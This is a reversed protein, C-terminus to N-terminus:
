RIRHPSYALAIERRGRAVCAPNAGDQVLYWHQRNAWGLKRSTAAQFCLALVREDVLLGRNSGAVLWAAADAAEQELDRRRQGFNIVPRDLYLLYQEKYAVLGLEGVDATRAQVHRVFREGSRWENMAPIVWYSVILVSWAICVGFAIFALKSRALLCIAICGAGIAFLPPVPDVGYSQLLELRENDGPRLLGFAAISTAAAILAVLVLLMRQPARRRALDPLFPACALVFAPVAPLVYVGRKGSSFSFFLVVLVTWALPLVVRLDRERWSNRWRPWLWPVLAIWPLWLLPIVAVIFYWFPERHHWAEAYRELTQRFLIEDRYAALDPHHAAAVLMPVLWVSVAAIMVLPGLSWRARLEFRQAGPWHAVRAWLYPLFILLPLFGVGKTIIGFGVAAWAGVYWRWDPGLLLHRMFGYLGLTTWFCLTADIQAQRAQWIFQVSVLLAFGALLGIERNWLRRALDYVLVVSGLAALMSPLLFAWRLSGTLWLAAALLWFFLPPKDAYLDGGVQPILWQGTALMDRAILAFRPEDAPWPDRLGIGSAILLLGVGLLWCLDRRIHDAGADDPRLVRRVFGSM